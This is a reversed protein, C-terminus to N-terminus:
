KKKTPLQKLHSGKLMEKAKNESLGKKKIIGAAIMGFFGAQKKSVPPM